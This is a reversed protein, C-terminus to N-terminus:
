LIILVWDCSLLPNSSPKHDGGCTVGGGGLFFYNTCLVFSMFRCLDVTSVFMVGLFYM